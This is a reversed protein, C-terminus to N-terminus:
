QFFEETEVDIPFVTISKGQKNKFVWKEGRGSRNRPQKLNRKREVTIKARELWRRSGQAANFHSTTATALSESIEEDCGIDQLQNEAESCANAALMHAVHSSIETLQKATFGNARAAFFTNDNLSTCNDEQECLPKGNKGPIHTVLDRMIARVAAKQYSRLAAM